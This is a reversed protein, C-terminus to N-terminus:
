RSTNESNDSLIARKVLTKTIEIKYENMSLPKAGIVSAEAASKAITEDIAEGKIVQEATTARIPAPAVAGLAISIDECIGAKITIVSAVSVISFDIPKRLSFKLFEQKTGEPLKSVQIETVIEEINLDNGLPNYFDKVPITRDGNSGVVKITANLATLAVATDSPCVAVCKKGELIAHYRNDGQVAMCKRNGKRWCMFRGGIQHPYRYYLCRVDQCLNGGITGMNRIETTAVAGAAQSLVRYKAKVIPSDAIDALRTLTGIKLGKKDERIYDLGPITKINIIVKPSEPLINSKLIGLLDTGGAILKARGQYEKLLAIAEDVTKVNVHNFPKM